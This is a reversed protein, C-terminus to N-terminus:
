ELIGLYKGNHHSGFNENDEQFALGRETLYCRIVDLIRNLVQHRYQSEDKCLQIASTNINGEVDKGQLYKLISQRHIESNEHM